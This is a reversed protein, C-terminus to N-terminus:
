ETPVDEITPESKWCSVIMNIANEENEIDVHDANEDEKLKQLQSLRADAHAFLIEPYMSRAQEKVNEALNFYQEQFDYFEEDTMGLGEDELAEDSSLLDRMLGVQKAQIVLEEFRDKFDPM